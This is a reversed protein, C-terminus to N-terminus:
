DRILKSKELAPAKKTETLASSLSNEIGEQKQRKQNIPELESNVVLYNTLQEMMNNKEAAGCTKKAAM